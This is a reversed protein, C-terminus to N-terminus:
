RSNDILEESIRNPHEFRFLPQADACQFFSHLKVVFPTDLGKGEMMESACKWLKASSMPAVFSTYNAPISLGTPKLCKQAGDLCEPSLENDGFSGLLESVMLDCLEPPNWTRMDKDVVVVNNWVETRVRNRLTIVANRNKEVAYVRVSVGCSCAASLTAAVLPGRGAGVVTVVMTSDASALDGDVFTSRSRIDTLALAIATEYREYKTPDREFTEYTQAELNDMLPQLPAQLTDRYAATARDDVSDAGSNCYRAKLHRLYQIYPLYDNRSLGSGFQTTSNPSGTVAHHPRGTVVLRCCRFNFFFELVQQLAKNLVPYGAKNTVFLNTNILIAKVPEAAWRKLLLSNENWGDEAIESSLELAVCLRHSHGCYQRFNDWLHWGDRETDLEISSIDTNDQLHHTSGITFPIRLWMQQYNNLSFLQGISRSYNPCHLRPTPLLVSQLCLHSAWMLEDTLAKHSSSRITPSSSDLDLWSSIKGVVSSQWQKCELERDSRTSPSDRNNSIGLTDLRHRPHFLPLVLFDIENTTQNEKLHSKIDRVFTSEKGISISVDM